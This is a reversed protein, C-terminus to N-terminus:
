QDRERTGPSDGGDFGVEDLLVASGGTSAM